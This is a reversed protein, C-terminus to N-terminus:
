RFKQNHVRIKEIMQDLQGTSFFGHELFYQGPPPKLIRQKGVIAMQQFLTLYGRRQAFEGFKEGYNKNRLIEIVDNTSLFNWDRAIRGFRPCQKNEWIIADIYTKWSIMGTYYLFQNFKMEFGPTAGQYYHSRMNQRGRKAKVTNKPNPQATDPTTSFPKKTKPATKKKNLFTVGDQAMPKLLEYASSVENFRKTMDAENIGLAKSRDPHTEFAKKRYAKNLKPLDLRIAVDTIHQRDTSFLIQFARQLELTSAYAPM